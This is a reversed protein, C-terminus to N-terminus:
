GSGFAVPYAVSAASSVLTTEGGRGGGIGATIAKSPKVIIMTTMDPLPYSEVLALSYSTWFGDFAGFTTLTAPGPYHDDNLASHLSTLPPLPPPSSLRIAALARGSCTMPAALPGSRVPQQGGRESATFLLPDLHFCGAQQIFIM